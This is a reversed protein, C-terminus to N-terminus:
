VAVLAWNNVPRGSIDLPYVSGFGISNDVPYLSSDVRQVIPTLHM